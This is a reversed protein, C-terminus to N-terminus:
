RLALMNKFLTTDIRTATLYNATVLGQRSCPTGWTRFVKEHPLLTLATCPDYWKLVLM